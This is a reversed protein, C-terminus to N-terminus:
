VVGEKGRGEWRSSELRRGESCPGGPAREQICLTYQTGCIKALGTTDRVDLGDCESRHSTPLVTMQSLPPLHRSWWVSLGRTIYHM